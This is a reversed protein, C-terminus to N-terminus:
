SVCPPRGYGVQLRDSLKTRTTVKTRAARPGHQGRPGWKFRILLTGSGVRPRNAMPAIIGDGNTTTTVIITAPPHNMLGHGNGVEPNLGLTAATAPTTTGIGAGRQAPNGLHPGGAVAGVPRSPPDVTPHGVARVGKRRLNAHAVRGKHISTPGRLQACPGGGTRTGHRRRGSRRPCTGDLKRTPTPSPASRMMTSRTGHRHGYCCSFPRSCGQTIHPLRARGPWSPM